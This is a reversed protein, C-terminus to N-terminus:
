CLGIVTRYQQATAAVEIFNGEMMGRTHDATEHRRFAWAVLV